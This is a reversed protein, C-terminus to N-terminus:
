QGEALRDADVDLIPGVLDWVGLARAQWEPDTNMLPPRPVPPKEGAKLLRVIEKVRFVELERLGSEVDQTEVHFASLEPYGLRRTWEGDAREVPAAEIVYPIALYDRVKV